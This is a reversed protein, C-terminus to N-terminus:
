KVARPEVFRVRVPSAKRGKPPNSQGEFTRALARLRAIEKEAKAATKLRKGRREYVGPAYVRRRLARLQAIQKRSPQNRNRKKMNLKAGFLKCCPSSATM